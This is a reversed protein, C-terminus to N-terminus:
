LKALQYLFQFAAVFLDIQRFDTAMKKKERLGTNEILVIKIIVQKLKM